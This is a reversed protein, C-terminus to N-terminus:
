FPNNTARTVALDGLRAHLDFSFHRDDAWLYNTATAGTVLTATTCDPLALTCAVSAIDAYGFVSPNNLILQALEDLQVLGILRGDNILTARLRANFRDGMQTLLAARGPTAAEQARAFPTAGQNPLTAVLVRGGAQAVGNVTTALARGANEAEAIAGDAGLTALRSYIDLIDNQGALMTVLDTNTFGATRAAVQSAVDAVKAGPTASIFASVPRTADTICNQFQFGFRSALSQVWIRNNLCDVVLDAANSSDPDDKLANVTYKKGRTHDGGEDTIVSYEDGFVLLQRPEFTSVRDGGGCSALLVVASAGVVRQVCRRWGIASIGVTM